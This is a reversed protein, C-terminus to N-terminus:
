ACSREARTEVQSRIEQVALAYERGEALDARGFDIFLLSTSFTLQRGPRLLQAGELIFREVHEDDATPGSSSSASQIGYGPTLRM